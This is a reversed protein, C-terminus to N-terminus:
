RIPYYFGQVSQARNTFSVVDDKKVLFIPSYVNQWSVSSNNRFVTKGNIMMFDEVGTLADVSSTYYFFLQIYGFNEVTYSNNTFTIEQCNAYDPLPMSESMAHQVKSNILENLNEMSITIKASDNTAVLIESYLSELDKEEAEQSKQYEEKARNAKTLLGNEGTLISIAVGSLILLVIITIVLVILTIGQEKKM